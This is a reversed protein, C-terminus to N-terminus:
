NLYFNNDLLKFFSDQSFIISKEHGFIPKCYRANKAKFNKHCIDATEPIVFLITWLYKWIEIM